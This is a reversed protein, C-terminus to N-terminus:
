IMKLTVLGNNYFNEFFIKFKVTLKNKLLNIFSKMQDGEYEFESEEEEKKEIVMM